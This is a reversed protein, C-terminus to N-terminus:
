RRQDKLENDIIKSSYQLNKKFSELASSVYFHVEEKYNKRFKLSGLDSM